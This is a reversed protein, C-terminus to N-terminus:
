SGLPIELSRLVTLFKRVFVAHPKESVALQMAAPQHKTPRWLQLDADRVELPIQPASLMNIITLIHQYQNIVPKHHNM